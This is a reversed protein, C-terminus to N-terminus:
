RKDYWKKLLLYREAAALEPSLRTSLMVTNGKWECYRWMKIGYESDTGLTHWGKETAWAEVAQAEPNEANFKGIAMSIEILRSTTAENRIGEPLSIRALTQGIDKGIMAGVHTGVFKGAQRGVIPGVGPILGGLAGGVYGGVAAGVLQGGSGGTREANEVEQKANSQKAKQQGVVESGGQVEEVVTMPLAAQGLALGTFMLWVVWAVVIRSKMGVRKLYSGVRQLVCRTFPQISNHLDTNSRDILLLVIKTSKVEHCASVLQSQQKATM